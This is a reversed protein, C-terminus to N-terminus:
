GKGQHRKRKKKPAGHGRALTLRKKGDEDILLGISEWCEGGLWHQSSHRAYLLHEIFIQQIFSNLVRAEPEHTKDKGWDQQWRSLRLLEWTSVFM